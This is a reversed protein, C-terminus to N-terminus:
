RTQSRAQCGDPRFAASRRERARRCPTRPATTLRAKHTRSHITMVRTAHRVLVEARRHGSPPVRRPQREGSLFCPLAFTAPLRLEVIRGPCRELRSRNKLSRHPDCPRHLGTWQCLRFPVCHTNASRNGVGNSTANSETTVAHEGPTGTEL